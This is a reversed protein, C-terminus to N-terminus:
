DRVNALEDCTKAPFALREGTIADVIRLVGPEFHQAVLAVDGWGPDPAPAQDRPESRFVVRIWDGDAHTVSHTYINDAHLTLTRRRSFM